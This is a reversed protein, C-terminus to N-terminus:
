DRIFASCINSKEFLLDINHLDTQVSTKNPKKTLTTAWLAHRTPLLLHVPCELQSSTPHHYYVVFVLNQEKKYDSNQLARYFTQLSTFSANKHGNLHHWCSKVGTRVWSLCLAYSTLLEAPSRASTISPCGSNVVVCHNTPGHFRRHLWLRKYQFPVTSEWGIYIRILAVRGAFHSLMQTLNNM